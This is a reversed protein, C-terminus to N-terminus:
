AGRDSDDLRLDVAELGNAALIDLIRRLGGHDQVAGTLVTSRTDTLLTLEPICARLMPSVPGGVGFEYCDTV